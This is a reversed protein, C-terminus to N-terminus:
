PSETGRATNEIIRDAFTQLLKWGLGPVDDIALRL